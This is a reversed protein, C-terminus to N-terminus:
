ARSLPNCWSEGTFFKEFDKIGLSIRNNLRVAIEPDIKSPDNTSYVLIKNGLSVESDLAESILALAKELANM